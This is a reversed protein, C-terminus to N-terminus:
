YQLWKGFVSRQFLLNSVFTAEGKSSLKISTKTPLTKAKESRKLSYKFVDKGEMKEVENAVVSTATSGISRNDKDFPSTSTKLIM